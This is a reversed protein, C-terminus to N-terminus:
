SARSHIRDFSASLDDDLTRAAPRAATTTRVNLSSVKKAEAAKHKAAEAEKAKREAEIKAFTADNIRIAKDYARQLIQRESLGPERARIVPILEAIDAEVENFFPNAKAFAEVESQLAAQRQEAERAKNSVVDTRTEAIQRELEAIKAQMALAERTPMGELQTPEAGLDVGYTRAIEHIAARPNADLMAQAALLAEIGQAYDMGNREFTPRYQELSRAVPEFAKVQQGLRSIQSHAESERQAIYQQAEPPLGTWKERMERSWSTPPDIAPTAPEVKEADPVTQDDTKAEAPAEADPEVAETNPERSVFKGDPGRLPEGVAADYAASLDDDLSTEVAETPTEPAAVEAVPAVDNTPQAADVAVTEIENM